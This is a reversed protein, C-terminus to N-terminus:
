FPRFTVQPSDDTTKNLMGNDEAELSPNCQTMGGHKLENVDQCILAMGNTLKRFQSLTESATTLSEM